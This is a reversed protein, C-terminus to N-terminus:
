RGVVLFSLRGALRVWHRHLTRRRSTRSALAEHPPTPIRLAEMRSGSYPIVFPICNPDMGVSLKLPSEFFHVQVRVM